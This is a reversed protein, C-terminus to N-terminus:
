HWLLEKPLLANVFSIQQFYKTYVGSGVYPNYEAKCYIKKRTDIIHIVEVYGQM